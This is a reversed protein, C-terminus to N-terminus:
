SIFDVFAQKDKEYYEKLLLLCVYLPVSCRASKMMEFARFLESENLNNSQHNYILFTYEEVLNARQESSQPHIEIKKCNLRSVSVFEPKGGYNLWRFFGLIKNAVIGNDFKRSKFGTEERLERITAYDIVEKLHTFKNKQYDEWDVSGSGSPVILGASADAHIGQVQFFLYGDSTIAITSVGIENSFYECPFKIARCSSSLPPFLNLSDNTVIQNSFIKNTLYTNYYSGKAIDTPTGYQIRGPLCLKSDNTFMKGNSSAEQYHKALFPLLSDFYQFIYKDVKERAQLSVQIEPDEQQLKMCDNISYSISNKGIVCITQDSGIYESYDVEIDSYEDHFDSKYYEFLDKFSLIQWIINAFVTFLLILISPHEWVSLFTEVIGYILLILDIIISFINIRKNKIGFLIYSIFNKM